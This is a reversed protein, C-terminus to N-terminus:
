HWLLDWVLLWMGFSEGVWCGVDEAGGPTYRYQGLSNTCCQVSLQQCPVSKRSHNGKPWWVQCCLLVHPYRLHAVHQYSFTPFLYLHVSYAKLDKYHVAGNIVCKFEMHVWLTGVFIWMVHSVPSLWFWLAGQIHSSHVGYPPLHSKKWKRSVPVQDVSGKM